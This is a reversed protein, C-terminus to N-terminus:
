FRVQGNDSTTLVTFSSSITITARYDVDNYIVGGAFVRPQYSLLLSPFFFCFILMVTVNEM